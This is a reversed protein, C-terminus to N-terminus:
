WNMDKEYGLTILLDGAHKKFAEIHKKKFHKKWSGIKGERFTGTGGFLTNAKEILEQKSLDLNLHHAIKKITILQMHASGGGRPGVLDEFQISLVDPANLWPLYKEYLQAVGKAQLIQNNFSNGHTIIDFLLMNFPRKILNEWYFALSVAQDRPDRYIFFQKVNRQSFFSQVYQSYYLHSKLFQDSPLSCFQDLDAPSALFFMTSNFPQNKKNEVDTRGTLASICKALLHTGAKPISIQIIQDHANISSNALFLFMLLFLKM